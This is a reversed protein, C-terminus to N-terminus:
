SVSVIRAASDDGRVVISLELASARKVILVPPESDVEDLTFGLAVGYLAGVAAAEYVSRARENKTIFLDAQFSVGDTHDALVATGIPDSWDSGLFVPVVSHEAISVTFAGLEIREEYGDGIPYTRGYTAAVGTLRGDPGDGGRARADPYHRHRVTSRIAHVNRLASRVVDSSLDLRGAALDSFFLEVADANSAEHGFVCTSLADPDWRVSGGIQIPKPLKGSAALREVTRESVGLLRAVESKAILPKVPKAYCKPEM